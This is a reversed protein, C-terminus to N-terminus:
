VDGVIILHLEKPGHVGISLTLEVDSTRSPGTIFSASRCADIRGIREEGLKSIVEDLGAVIQSSRLVAIHIPPLLSVLLANKEDSSLVVTGTEAIGYDAGTIGVGCKALRGVLDEHESAHSRTDFTSCGLATLAAPLNLEGFIFAGSIAVEQETAACIERIREFVQASSSQHVQASVATAEETFRAILGAQDAVGKPEIFPELPTPTQTVSHGLARRIDDLLSNQNVALLPESM